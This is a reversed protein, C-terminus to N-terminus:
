ADHRFPSADEQCKIVDNKRSKAGNEGKQTTEGSKHMTDSQM